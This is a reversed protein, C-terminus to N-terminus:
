IITRYIIKLLLKYFKVTSPSKAIASMIRGLAKSSMGARYYNKAMQYFYQAEVELHKKIEPHKAMIKKLVEARLAFKETLKNDADVFVNVLIERLPKYNYKVALRVMLDADVATPLSEDFGGVELFCERKITLGYGSGVKMISAYKTIPKSKTEEEPYWEVTKLTAYDNNTLKSLYRVGCWSFDMSPNTNFHHAMKELFNPHMEDDSDLFAIIKGTAKQVGYNRAFSVGSKEKKFYKISESKFNNSIVLETNDVSGDDVIILEWDKFTQNIVSEIARVILQARNYTPIIISVM